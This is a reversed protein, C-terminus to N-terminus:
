SGYLSFIYTINDTFFIYAKREEAASSSINIFVSGVDESVIRYQDDFDPLHIDTSVRKATYYYTVNKRTDHALIGHM